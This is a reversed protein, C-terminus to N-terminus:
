LNRQLGRMVVCLCSAGTADQGRLAAVGEPIDVAGSNHGSLGSSGRRELSNFTPGYGLNLVCM